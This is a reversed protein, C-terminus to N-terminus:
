SPYAVIMLDPGVREVADFRFRWADTLQSAGEGALLSPAREGGVLMPAVFLTMKQWLGERILESHLMSGGEALISRVGRAWAERLVLRLDVKGDVADAHVVEVSPSQPRFAPASTFVLTPAGDTLVRAAPPIEGRGDVVIRTWPTAGSALGLRRTLHPDDDRITGSGVLIADYEERLALSKQRAGDSTIWRSQRASTALKGDLSMGAKLLVFPTGTRAAHIFKENQRAAEAAGPGTEVAIGHQRLRELGKGNVLPHVDEIAAIVRGVKADILADACPPTRGFHSCPELTVYVDAGEPSETCARLAEIEAHPLGARAHWGEGIVRGDRVIVCGVMPNPSVTYRGKEALELARSMFAADSM